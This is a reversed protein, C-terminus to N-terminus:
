SINTEITVIANKNRRDLYKKLFPRIKNIDLFKLFIQFRYKGRVKLPACPVPEFCLLHAKKNSLSKLDNFIDLSLREAIELEKSRVVLAGMRRYPPLKLEKRLKFEHAHFGEIDFNKLYKFIYHGSMRTQICLNKNAIKGLRMLKLFAKETSRFDPGGIMEDCSIVCVSDFIYEYWFFSEFFQQTVLIIDFSSFFAQEEIELPKDFFIIKAMPFLRKIEREVKQVGCGFFKIYSSKCEQCIDFLETKHHCVPCAAIKEEQFYVLSASCRPCSQVKECKKCYLFTSFGKRNVFILIKEKKQLCDAIHYEFVKSIIKESGAFRGDHRMDIMKLVPWPRDSKCSVYGREGSAQSRKKILQFHYADLSPAFCGLVLKSETFESRWFAVDSTKYHPSQEQTYAFHGEEEIIILGLNNVPAFIASRTGMVFSLSSEKIATWNNLSDKSSLFSSLFYPEFGLNLKELAPKIKKHDPALFLVFFAEDLQQFLLLEKKQLTM